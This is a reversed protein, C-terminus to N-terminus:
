QIKLQRIMKCQTFWDPSLKFATTLLLYWATTLLNMPFPYWFDGNKYHRFGIVFGYLNIDYLNQSGVYAAVSLLLLTIYAAYRKRELSATYTYIFSFLVALHYPGHAGRCMELIKKTYAM